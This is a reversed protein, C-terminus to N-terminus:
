GPNHGAHVIAQLTQAEHEDEVLVEGAPDFSVGDAQRDAIETNKTIFGAPLVRYSAPNELKKWDRMLSLSEEKQGSHPWYVLAWDVGGVSLKVGSPSQYLDINERCDVLMARAAAAIAPNALPERKDRDGRNPFSEQSM